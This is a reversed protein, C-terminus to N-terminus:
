ASAFTRPTFGRSASASSAMAPRAAERSDQSRRPEGGRRSITDPAPNASTMMPSTRPGPIPRSSRGASRASSGMVASATPQRPAPSPARKSYRSTRRMGGVTQNSPPTWDSANSARIPGATHPSVRATGESRAAHVGIRGTASVRPATATADPGLATASAARATATGRRVMRAKVSAAAISVANAANANVIVRASNWRRSGFPPTSSPRTAHSASVSPLPTSTPMSNRLRMRNRASSSPNASSAVISNPAPAANAAPDLGKMTQAIAAANITLRAGIRRATRARSSAQSGIAVM